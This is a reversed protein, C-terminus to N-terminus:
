KLLSQAILAKIEAVTMHGTILLLAISIAISFKWWPVSKILERSRALHEIHDMRKNLNKEVNALM